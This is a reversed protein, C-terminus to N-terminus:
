AARSTTGTAPVVETLFITEAPAGFAEEFRLKTDLNVYQQRVKPSTIKYITARSVGHLEEFKRASIGRRRYAEWYRIFMPRKIRYNITPNM